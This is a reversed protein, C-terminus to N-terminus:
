KDVKAPQGRDNLRTYRTRKFLSSKTPSFQFGIASISMGQSDNMMFIRRLKGLAEKFGRVDQTLNLIDEQEMM